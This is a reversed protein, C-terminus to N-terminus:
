YYYGDYGRHRNNPLALLAVDTTLTKGTKDAFRSSLDNLARDLEARNLALAETDRTVMASAWLAGFRYINPFGQSVFNVQTDTFGPIEGYYTLQATYNIDPAPYFRFEGNVVTYYRPRGTEDTLWQDFTEPTVYQVVWDDGIIMSREALFDTPVTAASADILATARRVMQRVRLAKLEGEIMSAFVPAKDAQDTRNTFTGIFALWEDWTM